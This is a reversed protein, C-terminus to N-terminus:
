KKRKKIILFMFAIAGLLLIMEFGPTCIKQAKPTDDYQSPMWNPVENQVLTRELDITQHEDYSQDQLEYTQTCCPTPNKRIFGEQDFKSVVIGPYSTSPVAQSSDSMGTVVFGDTVAVLDHMMEAGLLDTNCPFTPKGAQLYRAWQPHITKNFGMIGLDYDPNNGRWCTLVFNDPKAPLEDIAIGWNDLGNPPMENFTRIYGPKGNDDTKIVLISQLNSDPHSDSRGAMIFGNDATTQISLLRDNKSIGNHDFIGYERAVIINLDATLRIFLPDENGYSGPQRYGCIGFTTSGTTDTYVTASACSDHVNSDLQVYWIVNGDIDLLLAVIDMNSSSPTDSNGIVLFRTSGAITCTRIEQGCQFNDPYNRNLYAKLWIPDGNNKVQMVFLDGPPL